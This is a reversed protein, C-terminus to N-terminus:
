MSKRDKIEKMKAENIRTDGNIKSYGLYGCLRSIVSVDESGCHPCKFLNNTFNHGCSNCKGADFNVGQYYGLAMGRRVLVRLAEINSPYDLRVYQIHGGSCLHFAKFEADQKEVPNVDENVHCHFSNTFYEGLSEGTLKEYQKAQTGCLSEAPTGYLAYLYGDIEKYENIRNQIYELVENAFKSGDAFLSKNCWLLTAEHLATIGFSATMYRVLDGVKQDAKLNGGILGGEMFCMPNTSARVNKMIDYRKKLFNRIVELRGDLESWFHEKWFVGFQKKCKAMIVPLNLSVAGINCRGVTRYDGNEDKWPSLYARCGMPSTIVGGGSDRYVQAVKNFSPMGTLSLYDPYMCESSCKLSLDFIDSVEKVKDVLLKDFLFVLKPFVVVRGGHGKRRVELLATNIMKYMKMDLPEAGKPPVGFTLTTFAFDGRSCPVTNLKLELSQFGQHLEKNVEQEALIRAEDASHCLPLYKKLNAVYSKKAYPILVKDIESLTFGGFQQATAVLTIDGIVQLASLVSNPETYHINSMTFGNKLVNGIDFLCCNFSGMLMDRLDHIYVDGDNVYEKEKPTLYFQKYLEKTLAGRILSSKTSILSSDFNANEKDGLYLIDDSTEKINQFIGSYTKKYHRFDEYCDAVANYGAKRLARIVLEHLVKTSVKNYGKLEEHIFKLYDDFCETLFGARENAKQVAEKIKDDVFPEVTGDKKVVILMLEEM